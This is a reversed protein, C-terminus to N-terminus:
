IDLVNDLEKDTYTMHQNAGAMNAQVNKGIKNDKILSILTAIQEDTFGSSLGTGVSNNNFINKGKFSQGSKKLASGGGQRNNNLNNPRPPGNNANQNNRQFNNRNPVSSVFASAQNREYTNSRKCTGDIFGTKNKGELALHMACSWVQHNETGKLKISVATLATSDNPHLHLPDSIDLKSIMTISDDVYNDGNDSNHVSM